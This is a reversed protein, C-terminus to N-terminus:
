KLLENLLPAYYKLGDGMDVPVYVATYKGDRFDHAVLEQGVQFDPFVQAPAPVIVTYVSVGYKGELAGEAIVYRKGEKSTIERARFSVCKAIM